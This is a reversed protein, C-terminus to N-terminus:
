MQHKAYGTWIRVYEENSINLSRPIAKTAWEYLRSIGIESAAGSYKCSGQLQEHEQLFRLWAEPSQLRGRLELGAATDSSVSLYEDLETEWSSKRRQLSPSENMLPQQSAAAVRAARETNLDRDRHRDFTDSPRQHQSSIAVAIERSSGSETAAKLGGIRERLSQMSPPLRSVGIGGYMEEHPAMLLSSGSTSEDAEGPKM